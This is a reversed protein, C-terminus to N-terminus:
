SPRLSGTLVKQIAGETELLAEGFTSIGIFKGQSSNQHDTITVQQDLHFCYKKFEEQIIKEDMRKTLLSKYIECPLTSAFDSQWEQKEEFIGGVPYPFNFERREEETVYLNIGVGAVITGEVLQCIIGGVKEGKTNILDNPWKLLLYPSFYKALFCGIELPTLTLTQNPELTFSFALANELHRWQSGRRGHGADQKSTSVLIPSRLDQFHNKIYSQTSDVTPLHLTQMAREMNIRKFHLAM